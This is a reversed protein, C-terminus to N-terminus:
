TKWILDIKRQLIVFNKQCICIFRFNQHLNLQIQFFSPLTLILTNCSTVTEVPTYATGWM